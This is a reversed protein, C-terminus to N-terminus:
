SIFQIEGEVPLHFHHIFLHILPPWKEQTSLFSDQTFELVRLKPSHALAERPM